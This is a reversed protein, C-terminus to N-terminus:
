FPHCEAYLSSTRLGRAPSLHQLAIARYLGDWDDDARKRTDTEEEDEQKSGKEQMRKKAKDLDTFTM